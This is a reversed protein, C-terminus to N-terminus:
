ETTPQNLRYLQAADADFAWASVRAGPPVASRPFTALWGSWLADRSRLSQVTKPRAFIDNSIAFINPSAGDNAFALVVCDAPKRKRKLAAWGSARLQDGAVAVIENLRGAAARADESHPVADLQTSRILPPRLLHLDDLSAARAIATPPDPYNFTKIVTSTDLVRSFAIAGRGLRNRASIWQLTRVSYGFGSVFLAAGLLLTLGGISSVAFRVKRTPAEKLAIALLAIVAVPLYLSFTIYRSSTAWELRDFGVRGLTALAAAGISYSGLALWSIARQRFTTTRIAAVVAACFLVLLAAGALAGLLVRHEENGAYAFSNGLFAVFYCLYTAISVSPAFQPLHEPKKYGSFYALACLLTLSTWAAAWQKWRRPRDRLLHVPFTLGWALLGHPMTFASFTALVACGVFKTWEAVRTECWALAAVIFLAPMFSPFGSAFLWLEFQAPSFIVVSMLCLCLASTASSLSSRRLLYFLGAATLACILPSLHMQRRVDWPGRATTALFILKPLVIRAEEEQKFLDAFTLQGTHAKVLLPAIEWDDMLPVEVGYRFVLTTIYIAPVAALALLLGTIWRRRAFVAGSARTMEQPM